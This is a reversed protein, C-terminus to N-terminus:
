ASVPDEDDEDEVYIYIGIAIVVAILIIALLGGRSGFLEEGEATEGTRVDAAIPATRSAAAMTPTTILAVASAAALFKGFAM